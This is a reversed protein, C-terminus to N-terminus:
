LLTGTKGMAPTVSPFHSAKPLFSLARTKGGHNHLLKPLQRAHLSLFMQRLGCLTVLGTGSKQPKGVRGTSQSFSTLTQPHRLGLQAASFLRWKLSCVQSGKFGM